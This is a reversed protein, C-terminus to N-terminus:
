CISILTLHEKMGEFGIPIIKGGMNLVCNESVYKSVEYLLNESVIVEYFHKAIAKNNM